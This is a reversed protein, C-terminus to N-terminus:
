CNKELILKLNKLDKENAKRMMMSMFPSFLRSFGSPKGANRLTMRTKNDALKDWSYTTEMAFPGEFTKMVFKKDTMEMVEYTYSLKKGLFHATFAIRSGLVLPKPTKWEATKINVYWEPANDPDSTYQSVKGISCNIDISTVVDVM